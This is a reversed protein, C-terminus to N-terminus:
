SITTDEALLPRSGIGRARRTWRAWSTGAPDPANGCSPLSGRTPSLLARRWRRWFEATVCSGSRRRTATVHRCSRDRPGVETEPGGRRSETSDHAPRGASPPGGAPAPPQIPARPVANLTAAWTTPPPDGAGPGYDFSVCGRGRERPHDSNSWEAVVVAQGGNGQSAALCRWTARRADCIRHLVYRRRNSALLNGTSGEAVYARTATPCRPV